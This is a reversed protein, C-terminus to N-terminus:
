DFISLVRVIFVKLGDVVVNYVFGSKIPFSSSSFISLTFTSIWWFPIHSWLMFIGYFQTFLFTQLLQFSIGLTFLESRSEGLPNFHQFLHFNEWYEIFVLRCLRGRGPKYDSSPSPECQDFALSISHWGGICAPITGLYKRPIQIKPTLECKWTMHLVAFCPEVLQSVYPNNEKRQMRISDEPHKTLKLIGRHQWSWFLFIGWRSACGFWKFM